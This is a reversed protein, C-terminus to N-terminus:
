LIYFRIIIDNIICYCYYIIKLLDMYKKLSFIKGSNPINLENFITLGGKITNSFYFLRGM